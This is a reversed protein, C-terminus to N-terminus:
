VVVCHSHYALLRLSERITDSHICLTLGTLQLGNSSSYQGYQGVSSSGGLVLIPKGNYLNAGGKDWPAILQKAGSGQDVRNGYLGVIATGTGIAVSAAEDTTINSPIKFPTRYTPM